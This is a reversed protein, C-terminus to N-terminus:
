RLARCRRSWARCRTRRRVATVPAEPTASVARRAAAAAPVACWVVSRTSTTVPARDAWAADVPEVPAAVVDLRPDSVVVVPDEDPEDVAADEAEVDPEADEPVVDDPVVDDPVPSEALAAEVAGVDVLEDAAVV